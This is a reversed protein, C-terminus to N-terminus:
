KILYPIEELHLADKPCIYTCVDCYWCDDRYKMYPVNDEGMRLVDRPCYNVCQGCGICKEKDAKIWQYERVETKTM